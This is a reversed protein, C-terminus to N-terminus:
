PFNTLKPFASIIHGDAHLYYEILQGSQTNGNWINTGPINSPNNNLVYKLEDMIKFEDWSDPRFSKRGGSSFVAGYFGESTDVLRRANDDLIASIHHRGGGSDGRFIHQVTKNTIAPHNAHTVIEDLNKAGRQIAISLNELVANNLRTVSPCGVVFDWAKVRGVGGDLYTGFGPDLLDDGLKTLVEEERFGSYVEGRGEGQFVLLFLVPLFFYKLFSLKMPPLYPFVVVISIIFVLLLYFFMKEM